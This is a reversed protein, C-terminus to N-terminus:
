SDTFMMNWALSFIMKDNKQKKHASAGFEGNRLFYKPFIMERGVEQTPFSKKPPGSVWFMLKEKIKFNM